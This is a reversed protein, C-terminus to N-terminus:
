RSVISQEKNKVYARGSVIKIGRGCAENTPKIIWIQKPNPEEKQDLKFRNYDQPLIYTM